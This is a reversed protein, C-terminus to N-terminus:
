VPCVCVPRGLHRPLTARNLQLGYWGLASHGAEVALVVGAADVPMTSMGRKLRSMNKSSEGAQAAEWVIARKGSTVEYCPFGSADCTLPGRVVAATDGSWTIAAVGDMGKDTAEPGTQEREPSPFYDREKWTSKGGSRHFVWARGGQGPARASITEGDSSVHMNWAVPKGDALTRRYLVRPPPSPGPAPLPTTYVSGGRAWAVRGTNSCAVSDVAIPINSYSVIVPPTDNDRLYYVYGTATGVIAM